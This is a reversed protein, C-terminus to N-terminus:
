IGKKESLFKWVGGGVAALSGILMFVFGIGFSTVSSSNGIAEFITFLLMVGGACMMSLGRNAIATFDVLLIFIFALLIHFFGSSMFSVSVVSFVKASLYPLFLSIFFLFAGGLAVYAPIGWGAPNKVNAMFKESLIKPNFDDAPAGSGGTPQQQYPQQQYPQQQFAQQDPAQQATPKGCSTCFATGDPLQAGCHPCFVPVGGKM